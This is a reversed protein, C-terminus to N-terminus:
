NLNMDSFSFHFTVTPFPIQYGEPAFHWNRAEMLTQMESDKDNCVWRRLGSLTLTAPRWFDESLLSDM